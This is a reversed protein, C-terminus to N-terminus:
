PLLRAVALTIGPAVPRYATEARKLNPVAGFSKDQDAIAERQSMQEEGAGSEAVNQGDEGALLLGTEEFSERIAAIVTRRACTVNQIQVQCVM